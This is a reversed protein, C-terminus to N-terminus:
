CPPHAQWIPVGQSPARCPSPFHRSTRGGSRDPSSSARSSHRTSCSPPRPRRCKWRSPQSTPAPRRQRPELYSALAMPEIPGAEMAPAQRAAFGDFTFGEDMAFAAFGTPAPATQALRLSQVDFPGGNFTLRITQVGANLDLQAAQGTAFATYSNTDPVAVAGSSEYVAGNQEFTATISRGPDPTATTFSLAYQGAQQVNVTYEVWEGNSVWGIAANNGVIDVGENRGATGGQDNNPTTDNYAVGQGGLGFQTANIVVPAAGIVVPAGSVPGQGDPPVFGLNISQFDMTGGGFTLRLTQVGANLGLQAAQTLAFVTYSNTDVVSVANSTEYVTGGQELSATITRGPDPTAANFTIAYRGAQQVNITYEVWEGNTIYGIVANNGVIDVGENRGATGGQDFATHADAGSLLQDLMENPIRPPKRRVM